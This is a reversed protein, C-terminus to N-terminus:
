EEKFKEYCEKAYKYRDECNFNENFYNQCIYNSTKKLDNNDQVYHLVRRYDNKLQILLFKLQCEEDGVSYRYKRCTELLSKKDDYDSWGCLGFGKGDNIFNGTGADAQAVYKDESGFYFEVSKPDLDSVEKMNGIFGCAGERSFENDRFFEYISEDDEISFSIFLILFLYFIKM